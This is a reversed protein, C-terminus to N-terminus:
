PQRMRQAPPLADAIIRAVAQAFPLGAKDLAAAFGADPSLCPNANVELVWPRGAQDVRFDV